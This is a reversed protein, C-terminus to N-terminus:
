EGKIHKRFSHALHWVELVRDAIRARETLSMEPCSNDCNKLRMMENWIDPIAIESVPVEGRSGLKVKTEGRLKRDVREDSEEALTEIFDIFIPLEESSYDNSDYEDCLERGTKSEPIIRDILEKGYKEITRERTIVIDAETAEKIATSTFAFHKLKM